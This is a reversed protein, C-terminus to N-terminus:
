TSATTSILVCAQKDEGIPTTDQQPYGFDSLRQRMLMNEQVVLSFAQYKAETTYLTVLPKLRACANVAGGCLFFVYGGAARCGM